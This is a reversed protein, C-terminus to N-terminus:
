SGRYTSYSYKSVLLPIHCHMTSDDVGFRIPVTSLFPIADRRKTDVEIRSDFYESVHFMLEYTGAILDNGSMLSSGDIRGDANTTFTGLKKAKTGGGAYQNQEDKTKQIRYLEVRMGEAPIGNAADLVHTTLCGGDCSNAQKQKREDKDASSNIDAGPATAHNTREVIIRNSQKKDVHVHLLLDSSSQLKGICIFILLILLSTFFLCLIRRQHGLAAKRSSEVFYASSSSLSLSSSLTGHLAVDSGLFRRQNSTTPVAAAAAAASGRRIKTM